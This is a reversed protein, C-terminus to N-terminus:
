AVAQLAVQGLCARVARWKAEAVEATLNGVQVDIWLELQRRHYSTGWAPILLPHKGSRHWKKLTSQDHGLLRGVAAASFFQQKVDTVNLLEADYTKATRKRGM